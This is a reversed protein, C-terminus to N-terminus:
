VTNSALLFWDLKVKHAPVYILASNSFTDQLLRGADNYVYSIPTGQAGEYFFGIRTKTFDNWKLTANGNSVVRRGPDFDSRSLRLANAGNVSETNNWQSSNQSSTADLLVTSEGYSLTGSINADIFDSRFNKALTFAVNYAKGESTNSGLYIGLYTNDVRNNGNYRPRNDHM